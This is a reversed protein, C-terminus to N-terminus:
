EPKPIIAYYDVAVSRNILALWIALLAISPIAFTTNLYNIKLWSWGAVLARSTSRAVCIM